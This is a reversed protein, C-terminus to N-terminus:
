LVKETCNLNIFVFFLHFIVTLGRSEFLLARAAPLTMPKIGLYVLFMTSQEKFAQIYHLNSQILADALYSHLTQSAAQWFQGQYM